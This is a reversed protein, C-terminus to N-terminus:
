TTRASRYRNINLVIGVCVYEMWVVVFSLYRSLLTVFVSGTQLVSVTGFAVFIWRPLSSRLYNLLNMLLRRAITLISALGLRERSSSTSLEDISRDM